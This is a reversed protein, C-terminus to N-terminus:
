THGREGGSSTTGSRDPKDLYFFLYLYLLIALLLAIIGIAELGGGVNGQGGAQIADMNVAFEHLQEDSLANMKMAAEEPTLGHDQLRQQVAKM